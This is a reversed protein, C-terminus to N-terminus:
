VRVCRHDQLVAIEGIDQAVPSPSTVSPEAGTATPRAAQRLREAERHLWLAEAVRGRPDGDILTKKDPAAGGAAVSGIAQVDTAGATTCPNGTGGDDPPNSPNNGKGGCAM